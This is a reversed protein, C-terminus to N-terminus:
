TIPVSGQLLSDILLRSRELVALDRDYAPALYYYPNVERGNYHLEFHTHSSSGEANGSDGTWAILQGAEVEVGEEIGPALTLYWPAKGDDTGVNDDNLHIYLSDWGDEHEIIVYRGPRSRENIKTVVGDAVAYVEVMKELAMLDTGRHRRGGSRGDGWDNSFATKDVEQPFRLDFPPSLHHADAPMAPLVFMVAVLTATLLAGARKVIILSM